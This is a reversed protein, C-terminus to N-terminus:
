GILVASRGLGRRLNLEMQFLRDQAHVFGQALFADRQSAARIHPVGEPDRLVEVSAALGAVRLTGDLPPLAARLTEPTM